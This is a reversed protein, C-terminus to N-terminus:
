IYCSKQASTARSHLLQSHSLCFPDNSLFPAGDSNTEDLVRPALGAIGFVRSLFSTEIINASLSLVYPPEVLPSRKDHM